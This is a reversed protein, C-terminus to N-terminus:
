IMLVHTQGACCPSHLSGVGRTDSADANSPLACRFVNGRAGGKGLLVGLERMREFVRLTEATAPAKSARDSVMELGVQAGRRRAATLLHRAEDVVGEVGEGPGDM